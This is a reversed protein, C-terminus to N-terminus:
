KLFTDLDKINAGKDLAEKVVKNVVELFQDYSLCFLGQLDTKMLAEDKDIVGDAYMKELQATLVNDVIAKKGYTYFDGDKIQFFMKLLTIIRIENETLVDDELIIESYDLIVQLAEPKIMSISYGSESLCRKLAISNMQDDIILNLCRVMMPTYNREELLEKVAKRIQEM